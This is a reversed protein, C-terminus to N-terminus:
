TLTTIGSDANDKEAQLTARAEALMAVLLAGLGAADFRDNGVHGFWKAEAETYSVLLNIPANIVQFFLKTDNHREGWRIGPKSSVATFFQTRLTTRQTIDIM